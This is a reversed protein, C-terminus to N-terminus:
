LMYFLAASRIDKLTTLRTRRKSNKMIVWTWTKAYENERIRKNKSRSRLCPNYEHRQRYIRWWHFFMTRSARKNLKKYRADIYIYRRPKVYLEIFSSGEFKDVLSNARCITEWSDSTAYNSWIEFGNEDQQYIGFALRFAPVQERAATAWVQPHRGM